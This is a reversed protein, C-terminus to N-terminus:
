VVRGIAHPTLISIYIHTLSHTFHPDTTPHHSPLDNNFTVTVQFFHLPRNFTLRILQIKRCMLFAPVSSSDLKFESSAVVARQKNASDNSGDV